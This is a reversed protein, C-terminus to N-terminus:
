CIALTGFPTSINDFIEIVQTPGVYTVCLCRSM